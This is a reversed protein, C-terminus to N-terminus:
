IVPARSARMSAISRMLFGISYSDSSFSMSYMHEHFSTMELTGIHRSEPSVIRLEGEYILISSVSM